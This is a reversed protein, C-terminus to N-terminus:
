KYLKKKFVPKYKKNIKLFDLLGILLIADRSKMNVMDDDDDKYPANNTIKSYIDTTAM